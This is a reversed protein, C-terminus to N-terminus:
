NTARPMLRAALEPAIQRVIEWDDPGFDKVNPVEDGVGYFPHNNAIIEAADWCDLHARYTFFDGGWKQRSYRYMDGKAISNGCSDCCHPKRAKRQDRDFVYDTM